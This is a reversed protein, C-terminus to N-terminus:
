AETARLVIWAKDDDTRSATLSGIRDAIDEVPLGASSELLRMLHELDPGRGRREDIVGDTYLVLTDGPALDVVTDSLEVPFVGLLLGPKGVARVRGDPSIHLPLPHGGSSLTGRVGPGAAALRLLCATVFKESEDERILLDSLVSLISSPRSQQRGIVRLSQRAIGMTAAAPAGKGCVDGIVVAWSGARLQFVDYFDGGIQNGESAPLYRVALEVRPIEPLRRPLLSEQLARGMQEREHQIKARELASAIRAAVLELLRLDDESFSKRTWSAVRIVGIVRGEVKLPVGAVSAVRKRAFPGALRVSSADEEVRRRGSAAVGGAFGEGMPIRVHDRVDDELGVAARAELEDGTVLFFTVADVALADKIRGLVEAVFRDFPLYGLSVDIISQLRRLREAARHTEERATRERLLLSEREREARKREGIDRLASLYITRGPLDITTAVFEVAVQTGDKRRVEIEGRERGEEVFRRYEEETREPERAVVDPVRLRLLEERSYGLLETAHENADIYRAEADAVLIADAANEFLARYRAEAEYRRSLDLVFSIWRFPERQLTSGGILVPVRTGDKRVFEKEVPGAAGRRMMHELERLDQELYEAPTMDVWPLGEAEFEERTYGVM